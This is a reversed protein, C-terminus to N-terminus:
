FTAKPPIKEDFFPRWVTIDLYGYFSQSLAVPPVAPAAVLPTLKAGSSVKSM